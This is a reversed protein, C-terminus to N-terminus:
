PYDPHWPSSGTAGDRPEQDLARARALANPNVSILANIAPGQDDYAEIRNLYLQVLQESTLAGHDLAKNIESITAERLRFTEATAAPPFACLGFVSLCTLIQKTIQFFTLPNKM